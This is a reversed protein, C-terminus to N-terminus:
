PNVTKREAALGAVHPKARVGIDGEGFCALSSGRLALPAEVTLIRDSSPVGAPLLRLEVRGLRQAELFAGLSVDGRMFGPPLARLVSRLPGRREAGVDIGSEAAQGHFRDIDPEDHLHEFRDPMLLRLRSGPDAPPYLADEIPGRRAAVALSLVRCPPLGMKFVKKGRAALNPADLVM